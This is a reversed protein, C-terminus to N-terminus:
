KEQMKKVDADHKVQTHQLQKAVSTVKELKYILQRMENLREEYNKEVTEVKVTLAKNDQVLKKAKREARLLSSRLTQNQRMLESHKTVSANMQEVATESDKLRSELDDVKKLLSINRKKSTAYRSQLRQFEANEEAEDSDMMSQERRSKFKSM